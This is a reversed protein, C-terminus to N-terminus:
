QVEVAKGPQFSQHALALGVKYEVEDEDASDTSEPEPQLSVQTIPMCFFQSLQM